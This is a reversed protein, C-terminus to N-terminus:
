ARTRGLVAALEVRSGVRSKRYISQAQNAVTRESTGRQQGIARYTAGQMLQIAVERESATLDAFSEDDALPYAGVVIREGALEVEAMRARMGDPSFLGALETRSSLGLKRQARTLANGVASNSLGLIYAIEKAGRNMGCFEAVQRERPSLGRLDSVEPDNKVAVVFRRRDSDFHDLLSWRGCVLGQWLELAADPDSRQKKTRARDSRGVAERLHERATAPKSAERAHHVRGDPTMIAEVREADLNMAALNQRLRLGSALHAVIRSWNRREQNGMREPRPLPANLLVGSGTGTHAVLGLADQFGDPTNRVFYRASENVFETDVLSNSPFLFESLSGVPAGQRYIAGIAEPPANELFARLQERTGVGRVALEQLSFRTASVRFIQANVGVGRDLMPAARDLLRELWQRPEASLDYGAEVVGIWDRM